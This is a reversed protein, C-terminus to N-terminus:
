SAAIKPPPAAAIRRVTGLFDRLAAQVFKDRRYIVGCEVEFKMGPVHFQRLRNARLRSQVLGRAQVSVGLGLEVLRSQLDHDNTEVAMTLSRGRERLKNELFARTPCGDQCLIWPLDGLDDLTLEREKVLSGDGPAIFILEATFMPLLSLYPSERVVENFVIMGIDVQRDLVHQVVEPPWGTEVQIRVAPHKKRYSELVHPLVHVALVHYASIALKGAGQGRLDGIEERAVEVTQAVRDAHRLLVEGAVTLQMKRGRELLPGGLEEELARIQKSVAPQTVHMSEAALRFNKLRAVARFTALQDLTM